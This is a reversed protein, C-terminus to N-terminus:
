LACRIFAARAEEDPVDAPCEIGLHVGGPLIDHIDHIARWAEARCTPVFRPKLIGNVKTCIRDAEARDFLGLDELWVEKTQIENTNMTKQKPNNKQKRPAPRHPINQRTARLQHRM